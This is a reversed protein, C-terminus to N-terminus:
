PFLTGAIIAYVSEIMSGTYRCPCSALRAQSVPAAATAQVPIMLNAAAGNAPAIRRKIGTGADIVTNPAAM